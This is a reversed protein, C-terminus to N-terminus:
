RSSPFVLGVLNRSRIAPNSELKEIEDRHHDPDDSILAGDQREVWYQHDALLEIQLPQATKNTSFSYTGPELEVRLNEQQAALETALALVIFLAGGIAYVANKSTMPKRGTPVSLFELILTARFGVM